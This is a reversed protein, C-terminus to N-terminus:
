PIAKGADGHVQTHLVFNMLILQAGVTNLHGFEESFAMCKRGAQLLQRALHKWEIQTDSEDDLSVEDLSIASFGAMTLMLGVIEWCLNEGMLLLPLDQLKTHKDIASPRSTTQFVRQSLDLLANESTELTLAVTKICDRIFPVIAALREVKYWRELGPAYKPMDALLSLVQAGEMIKASDPDPMNLSESGRVNLRSDVKKSKSDMYLEGETFVDSYSTSGLFGPTPRISHIPKARLASSIPELSDAQPQQHAREPTM